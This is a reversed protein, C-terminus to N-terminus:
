LNIGITLLIDRNTIGGILQNFSLEFFLSNRTTVRHEYGVGLSFGVRVDNFEPIEAREITIVNGNITSIYMLTNKNFNYEIIGGSQVFFRHKKSPISYRLLVPMKLSSLNAVFDYDKNSILNNYSYGHRSYNVGTNLSFDNTFIPTDMFLGIAFAREYKYDFQELIEKSAIIKSWEYGTKIGYRFHPFSRLECQHYFDIFRMMSKKNYAVLNIAEAVKPCDETIERLLAKYTSKENGKNKPIEILLSSDMELVFLKSKGGSYQYLSMEGDILRELFIRRTKDNIQIEKSVYVQKDSRKEKNFGYEKVENPYIRTGKEKDFGYEKVEDPSLRVFANKETNIHVFQSNAKEGANILRVGVRSVSDTIFYGRKSGFRFKRFSKLECDNYRDIFRKLSKKNYAVSKAVDAVEPCDEAIERLLAIYAAKEQPIQILSSHDNELFFMKSAGSYYYLVNEGDTLKELFVRQVTNDIQIEKSVYIIDGFSYEQVEYPSLKVIDRGKKIHVFQANAREGAKILTVGVITTSDVIYYCTNQGYIGLPIILFSIINIFKKM